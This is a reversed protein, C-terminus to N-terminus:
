CLSVLVRSATACVCVIFKFKFTPIRSHPYVAVGASPSGQHPVVRVAVTLVACQACCALKYNEYDTPCRSFNNKERLSGVRFRAFDYKKTWFGLRFALRFKRKAESAERLALSKEGRACVNTCVFAKGRGILLRRPCCLVITALTCAALVKTPFGEYRGRTRDHTSSFPLRASTAMGARPCLAPLRIVLWVARFGSLLLKILM